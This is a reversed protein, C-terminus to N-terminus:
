LTSSLSTLYVELIKGQMLLAAVESMHIMGLVRFTFKSLCNLAHLFTRNKWAPMNCQGTSIANAHQQALVHLTVLSM